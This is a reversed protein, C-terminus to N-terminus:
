MFKFTNLYFLILLSINLHLHMNRISRAGIGQMPKTKKKGIASLM